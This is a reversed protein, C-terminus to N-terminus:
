GLRPMPLVNRHRRFERFNFCKREQWLSSMNYDHQPSMALATALNNGLAVLLATGVPARSRERVLGAAGSMFPSHQSGVSARLHVAEFGQQGVYPIAPFESM